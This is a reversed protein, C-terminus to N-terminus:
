SPSMEQNNTRRSRQTESLTALIRRLEVTMADAKVHVETRVDLPLRRDRYREQLALDEDLIQQEFAVAEALRREDGGLDDRALRTYLRCTEDDEPQVHFTVVNTGGADLYEIRLEVSFPAVYTYTVRRRQILPREGRAVGPDEHNPFPHEGRVTMGLQDESREVRLSALQAAEDTGITEAHLFPFHALDLFNDIMLGAGVRARVPELEGAMGDGASFEPLPTLPDEPALFVLGDREALGAPLPDAVLAPERVLTWDEGLLRIPVPEGGVEASRAVPHWCRRLAPDTNSLWRAEPMAGDHDLERPHLLPAVAADRTGALM